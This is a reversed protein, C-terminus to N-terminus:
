EKKAEETSQDDLVGYINEAIAQPMIAMGGYNGTVSNHTDPFCGDFFGDQYMKLTWPMNHPRWKDKKRDIMWRAAAATIGAHYSKWDIEPDIEAWNIHHSVSLAFVSLVEWQVHDRVWNAFYWDSSCLCPKTNYLMPTQAPEWLHTFPLLCRIWYIAKSKYESKDLERYGLYYAVAAHGAALLNPSHLPTEWYDGGEPRQMTMCYDLAKKVAELYENKGSKHFADLLLPVPQLCIDLATDGALGMPEVYDRTVVFDDKVYHRGDPEFRFSGDPQQLRLLDEANEQPKHKQNQETHRSECWRIKEKLSVALPSTDNEAVYRKLFGPVDTSIDDENQKCGFGRNEFWLNTNYANAIIELKNKFYQHDAKIDPMGHRKVWDTVSQMSNGKSLSIEANIEVIQDLHLEMAPSASVNNEEAETQVDPLMIGILNNDARDIFNPTAFVPQCHYDRNNFWRSAIHTPEWSLSVANGNCSVAMVPISVKNPHPVFRKAWPDKFWDDGSSWEKGCVWDIGPFISDDKEAGFSSEGVKLWPGRIYSAFLNVKSKFLYQLKFLPQGKILTIKVTGDMLPQNLPYNIWKAFSSNELKQPIVSASVCFELSEGDPEQLRKVEPAEMRMPIEMDRALIEGLHDLVAIFTGDSSYIEGWGWGGNRKYMELRIFENQLIVPKEKSFAHCYHSM